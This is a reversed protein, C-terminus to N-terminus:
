NVVRKLFSLQRHINEEFGVGGEYVDFHGGPVRAAEGLPALRAAEAAAALPAQNDWTPLVLLVPKVSRNIKNIPRSFAIALITRASIKNMPQATAGPLLSDWGALAEPGPMAAPKSTGDDVLPLYIPEASVFSSLWDGLAFLSTRLVAVAPLMRAAAYGDVCPCQMIGAALTHDEAMLSTVHMGGFSSGWIVVRHTDWLDHQQRAWAVVDRFDQLERSISMLNRPTGESEGFYLYDFMIAAYGAKSFTKAFPLLGAAKIGGIGHGMVLVAPKPATDDPLLFSVSIRLPVGTAPIMTEQLQSM